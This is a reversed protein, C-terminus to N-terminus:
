SRASEFTTNMSKVAGQSKYFFSVQTGCTELYIKGRPQNMVESLDPFFGSIAKWQKASYEGKLEQPSDPLEEFGEAQLWRRFTEFDTRIWLKRRSDSDISMDATGTRGTAVRRRETLKVAERIGNDVAVDFRSPTCHKSLLCSRMLPTDWVIKGDDAAVATFPAGKVDQLQWVTRQNFYNSREVRM